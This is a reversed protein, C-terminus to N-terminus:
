DTQNRVVNIFDEMSKNKIEESLSPIQHTFVPRELKEEIYKHMEAFECCLVGTFTSIIAGERKTM